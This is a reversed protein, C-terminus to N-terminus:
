SGLIAALQWIQQSGALLTLLMPLCPAGHCKSKVLFTSLLKLSGYPESPTSCGQHLEACGLLHRAMRGRM